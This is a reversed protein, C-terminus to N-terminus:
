VQSNIIKSENYYEPTPHYIFLCSGNKIIDIISKSLQNPVAPCGFSRGLFGMNQICRSSVYDAGHIVIAREFAKDNIGAECGKLRLSYGHNGFYTNATTFFGLSSQHSEPLNSFKEAYLAGSNSGHAVWTNFLIKGNEMDIIYLRQRTSPQSFDIVSLIKPNTVQRTQILHDFGRMALEFATASLGANGLQWQAYFRAAKSSAPASVAHLSYTYSKLPLPGITLMKAAPAPNTHGMLLLVMLMVAPYAIMKLM